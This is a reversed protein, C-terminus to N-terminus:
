YKFRNLHPSAITTCVPSSVYVCVYSIVVFNSLYVYVGIDKMWELVIM